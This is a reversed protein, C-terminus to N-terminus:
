FPLAAQQVTPTRPAPALTLRPPAIADSARRAALEARCPPCYISGNEPAPDGITQMFYVHPAPVGTALEGRPCKVWVDITAGPAWPLGNGRRYAGLTTQDGVAQALRHGFDNTM